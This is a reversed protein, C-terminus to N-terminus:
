KKTNRVMQKSSMSSALNMELKIPVYFVFIQPLNQTQNFQELSITYEGTQTKYWAADYYAQRLLAISGMLSSPYNNNSTGKNFSYHAAAQDKLIVEHANEDSLTTVLSTGRAIGDRLITQVAGFGSKKYDEAKKTDPAFVAKVASEPRIAENWYYAGPKTTTFVQRFNRGFGGGAAAPATSVGYTSFADVLSPYIYKGQLDVVVYGKPVAIGQGVAEIVRDKVLLTGNSITQDASVVITANTFAYLGPRKDWSGNVPFTEQAAAQFGVLILCFLLIKKM